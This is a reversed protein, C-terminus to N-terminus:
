KRYYMKGRFGGARLRKKLLRYQKKTMASKKVVIKGKYGKFAKKSFKKALLKKSGKAKTIVVKKTKKSKGALINSKVKTSKYLEITVRSYKKGKVSKGAIVSITKGNQKGAIFLTSTKSKAGVVKVETSKTGPKTMIVTTQETVTVAEPKTNGQTPSGVGAFAGTASSLAISAAFVFATMRKMIRNM